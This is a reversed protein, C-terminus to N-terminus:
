EAGIAVLADRCLRVLEEDARVQDSSWATDSAGHRRPRALEDRLLPLAPAAAPGMDALCRAAAPRVRANVTWVTTLLPLVADADGTTRWLAEAM